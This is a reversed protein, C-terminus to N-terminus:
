QPRESEARRSSWPGGSVMLEGANALDVPTNINFFPDVTKDGIVIEEFVVSQTREGAIFSKVRRDAGDALFASLRPRVSLPWLACLPAEGESGRAFVLTDSHDIRDMLRQVLNEPLFPLDVPITLLHDPRSPLASAWEVGSLVGALPGEYTPAEDRLVPLRLGPIDLGPPLNVALDDVQLAIAAVARDLLTMGALQVLAKPTGGM